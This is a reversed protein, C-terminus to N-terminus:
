RDAWPVDVGTEMALFSVLAQDARLQSLRRSLHTEVGSPVPDDGSAWSVPGGAFGAVIRGQDVQRPLRIARPMWWAHLPRMGFCTNEIGPRMRPDPAVDDPEAALHQTVQVSDAERAHELVLELWAHVNPQVRGDGDDTEPVPPPDESSLAHSPDLADIAQGLVARTAGLVVSPAVLRVLAALRASHQGVETLVAARVVDPAAALRGQLEPASALADLLAGRREADFPVTVAERRARHENWVAGLVEALPAFGRDRPELALAAEVAEMAKRSVVFSVSEFPVM